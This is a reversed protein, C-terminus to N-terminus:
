STVRIWAAHARGACDWRIVVRDQGHELVLPARQLGPRHDVRCSECFEAPPLKVQDLAATRFRAVVESSILGTGPPRTKSPMGALTAM